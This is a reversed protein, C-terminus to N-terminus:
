SLDHWEVGVKRLACGVERRYDGYAIMCHFGRMAAMVAKADRETEIGGWPRWNTPVPPRRSVSYTLVPKVVLPHASMWFSVPMLTKKAGSSGLGSVTFASVSVTLFSQQLMRGGQEEM